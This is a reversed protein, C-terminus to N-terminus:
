DTKSDDGLIKSKIFDLASKLEVLQAQLQIPSHAGIHVKKTIQNLNNGIRSLEVFVARDTNNIQTRPMPRGASKRRIYETTEIGLSHASDSVLLFQDVTFRVNVQISKISKINKKPRAM